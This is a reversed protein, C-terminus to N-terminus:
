NVNEKEVADVKACQRLYDIRKQMRDKRIAKLAKRVKKSRNKRIPKPM